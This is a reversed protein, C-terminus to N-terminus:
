TWVANKCQERRIVGRGFMNSFHIHLELPLRKGNFPLSTKHVVDLYAGLMLKVMVLSNWAASKPDLSLGNNLNYVYFLKNNLICKALDIYNEPETLSHEVVSYKIKWFQIFNVWTLRLIISTVVVSHQLNKKFTFVSACCKKNTTSLDFSNELYSYVKINSM